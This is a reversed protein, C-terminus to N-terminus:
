NVDGLCYLQGFKKKLDAGTGRTGHFSHM